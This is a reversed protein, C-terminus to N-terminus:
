DDAMALAKQAIVHKIVMKFFEYVIVIDIRILSQSILYYHYFM